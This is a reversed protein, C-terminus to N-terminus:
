IKMATEYASWIAGLLNSVKNADGITYTEVGEPASVAANTNYGISVIVTDAPIEKLEEGIQFTVKNDEMSMVNASTHITVNTFKLLAVLLNKNAAAIDVNLYQDLAELITM